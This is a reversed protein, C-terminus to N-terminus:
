VKRLGERSEKMDTVEKESITIANVYTFVYIYINVFIVYERQRSIGTHISKNRIM